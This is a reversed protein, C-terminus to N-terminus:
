SDFRGGAPDAVPVAPEQGGPRTVPAVQRETDINAKLKLQHFSGRMHARYAIAMGLLVAVLLLGTLMGSRMLHRRWITYYLSSLWKKGMALYM